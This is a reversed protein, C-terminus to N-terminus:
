DQNMRGFRRLHDRWCNGAAGETKPQNRGSSGVKQPDVQKSLQDNEESISRDVGTSTQGHMKEALDICWSWVAGYISLQTTSHITRLM